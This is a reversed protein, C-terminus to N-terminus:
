VLDVRANTNNDVASHASDDDADHVETVTPLDAPETPAARTKAKVTRATDRKNSARKRKKTRGSGKLSFEDDDKPLVDEVENDEDDELALLIDGDM